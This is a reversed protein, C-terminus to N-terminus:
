ISALRSQDVTEEILDIFRQAQKVLPRNQTKFYGTYIKFPLRAPVLTLDPHNFLLTLPGRSCFLYFQNDLLGQLCYSVSDLYHLNQTIGLKRRFELSSEQSMESTEQTAYGRLPLKRLHTLSIYRLNAIDAHKSCILYTKQEFLPIFQHYVATNFPNLLQSGKFYATSFILNYNEVTINGATIDSPKEKTCNIPTAPYLTHYINQYKPMVYEYIRPSVCIHLPTDEPTIDVTPLLSAQMDEWLQTIQLATTYVVKGQETLKVGRNTRELVKFGLEKELSTMSNNLSQQTIYLFDAASNISKHTAIAILYQLQELRM